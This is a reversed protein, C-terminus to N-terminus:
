RPGWSNRPQMQTMTRAARGINIRYLADDFENRRERKWLQVWAPVMARFTIDKFPVEDTASSLSVDKDYQYTYTLGNENVTPTSSLYLYGDTPRIAAYQPLGDDDQEPDDILMQNYGGAYEAIFQTNTKDILPYRLSVLDTALTYARTGTALTLSSEGQSIPKDRDSVTYLEDIGENIVQVAIDISAQRASDSLSTLASSDGAIIGTRLLIQNIADLLTKNAM